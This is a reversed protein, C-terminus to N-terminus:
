RSRGIPWLCHGVLSCASLSWLTRRIRGLNGSNQISVLCGDVFVEGSSIVCDVDEALVVRLDDVVGGLGFVNVGENGGFVVPLDGNVDGEM